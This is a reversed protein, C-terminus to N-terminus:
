IHLLIPRQSVWYCCHAAHDSAFYICCAAIHWTFHRFQIIIIIYLNCEVGDGSERGDGASLLWVVSTLITTMHVTGVATQNTNNGTDYRFFIV